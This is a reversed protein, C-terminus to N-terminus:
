NGIPVSYVKKDFRNIFFVNQNFIKIDSADLNKASDSFLAKVTGDNVNIEFFDDSTYLAKEQYADPLTDIGLLQQDRPVACILMPQTKPAGGATLSKYRTKDLPASGGSAPASTSAKTTSSASKGQAANFPQTPPAIPKDYFVCKSPFTLFSLQKLPNGSKDVLRLQGGQQNQNASFMLGFPAPSSSWVTQLGPQDQIVPSIIKKAPDLSWLSSSWLASTKDAILIQNPALWNLTMDEQRLPLLAKPKSSSSAADLLSLVSGGTTLSTSGGSVGSFYAIQYNNPSWVPGSINQPLPQWTKQATDFISTQNGSSGGMTVLVKKGDFSFSAATINKIVSASIPEPQSNDTTLSTSGSTKFIQGDTQVFFVTNKADVFYDLSPANVATRLNEVPGTAQKVNQTSNATKPLQVTPLNGSVTTTSPTASENRSRLYFGLFILASVALIVLIIIIVKKMDIAHNKQCQVALREEM